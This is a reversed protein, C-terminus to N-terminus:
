EITWPVNARVYVTCDHGESDIFIKNADTLCYLMGKLKFTSLREELEGM